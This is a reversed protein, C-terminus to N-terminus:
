EHEMDWVLHADVLLSYYAKIAAIRAALASQAATTAQRRASLLAQLDSEGLSYARQMLKPANLCVDCFDWLIKFLEM